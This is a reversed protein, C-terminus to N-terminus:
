GAPDAARLPSLDSWVFDPEEVQLEAETFTSWTLAATIVGAARGSKVDYPSDGVFLVERRERELDLNRLALMVPEPDPKGRRVEDPTVITAFLDGIGLASLTRLTMERRKSTVIALPVGKASLGRVSEVAGPLAQVMADHAERQFATYTEQLAESEAEDAALEAFSDRLPRGLNALWVEDPLREGRHTEMTHHFSALILPVTDALTGDLDFLVARWPGSESPTM